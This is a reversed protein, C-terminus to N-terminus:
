DQASSRLFQDLMARPEPREPALVIARRLTPEVSDLQGAIMAVSAHQLLLLLHDPHHVLTQELADLAAEASGVQVWLPVLKTTVEVLDPRLTHIAAYHEAAVALEGRSQALDGLLVAEAVGGQGKRLVERALVEAEQHEGSWLQTWVRRRPNAAGEVIAWRAVWRAHHELDRVRASFDVPREAAGPAELATHPELAQMGREAQFEHYHVLGTHVWLGGLSLACLLLGGGARTLKGARKFHLQQLRVDARTWLRMVQLAVVSLIGAIGLALLFPVQETEMVWTGRVSFFAAAFFLALWLEEPVSNRARAPRPEKRPKAGLAVPGFSFSLAGKPCVSVCDLCKMCGTDKVMGWDRVEQAVAVNSTCAITCHGCQDCSEDVRIKGPAVRDAAAFLAGYPCAYTCFGKSGMFYVIILGCVVFTAIAVAPHPFTEWFDQTTLEVGQYEPGEGTWLRYAAPWAFMYLAALIPVVMLSRSRLANPRIGVKKLAALSLDQLALVHCGWGCFFRGFILTAVLTTAFFLLGANIVSRDALQMAESPELPSISEGTASLHWLHLAFLGHLAVLSLIRWRTM